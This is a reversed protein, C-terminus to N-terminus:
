KDGAFKYIKETKKAMGLKERALREIYATDSKKRSIDVTLSDITANAKRVAIESDSVQRHLRYMSVINGNGTFFLVAIIICALPLGITLLLVRKKPLGKSV